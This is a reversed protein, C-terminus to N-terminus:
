PVNDESFSFGHLANNMASFPPQINKHNATNTTGTLSILGDVSRGRGGEMTGLSIIITPVSREMCSVEMKPIPDRSKDGM